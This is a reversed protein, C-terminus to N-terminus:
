KHTSEKAKLSRYFDVVDPHTRACYACPKQNLELVAHPLSVPTTHTFVCEANTHFTTGTPSIFVTFFDWENAAKLDETSTFLEELTDPVSTGQDAPKSRYTSPLLPNILNKIAAIPTLLAIFPIAFITLFALRLVGRCADSTLAICLLLAGFLVGFAIRSEATSLSPPTNAPSQSPQSSTSPRKVLSGGSDSSASPKKGSSPTGSNIGTQDDFDYPCVGGTHQHASYGHHYHYEGTSRDYHGGDADTKGPHASVPSALLLFALLLPLLYRKM